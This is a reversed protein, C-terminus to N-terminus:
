VMKRLNELHKNARDIHKQDTDRSSISLVKEWQEIANATWSPKKEYVIALNNLAPLYEPNIKLAKKYEEVAKEYYGQRMYEVANKCYDDIMEQDSKDNKNDAGLKAKLPEQIQPASQIGAYYPPPSEPSKPQQVVPKAPIKAEIHVNEKEEGDDDIEKILNEKMIITQRANEAEKGTILDFINDLKSVYLIDCVGKSPNTLILRAKNKNATMKFGVLVGLGASDIFSVQELDVYIQSLGRDFNPLVTKKLKDCEDLIVKGIIRVYLKDKFKYIEIKM